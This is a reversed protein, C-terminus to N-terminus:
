ERQWVPHDDLAFNLHPVDEVGDKVQQALPTSFPTGQWTIEWCPLRDVGIETVPADIAGPYLDM